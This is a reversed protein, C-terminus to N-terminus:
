GTVSPTPPLGKHVKVHSSREPSSAAPPRSDHGLKENRREGFPTRKTTKPLGGGSSPPLADAFRARLAVPTDVCHKEGPATPLTQLSKATATCPPCSLPTCLPMYPTSSRLSSLIKWYMPLGRWAPGGLGAMVPVPVWSSVPAPPQLPYLPGSGM